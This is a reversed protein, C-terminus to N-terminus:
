GTGSSAGVVTFGNTFVSVTDSLSTKAKVLGGEDSKPTELKQADDRAESKSIGTQASPVSELVVEDEMNTSPGSVVEVGVVFDLLVVVVAVVVVVVVM